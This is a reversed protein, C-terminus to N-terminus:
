KTKPPEQMYEVVIEIIAKVTGNCNKFVLKDLVETGHRRIVESILAHIFSQTTSDVRSFDLVVRTKAELAPSIKELRMRRAKDKDEAFSGAEEFVDITKEDGNM